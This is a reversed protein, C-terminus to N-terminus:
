PRYEEVTQLAGIAKLLRSEHEHHQRCTPCSINGYRVAGCDPCVPHSHARRASCMLFPCPGDFRVSDSM